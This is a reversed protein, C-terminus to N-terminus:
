FREEELMNETQFMDFLFNGINEMNGYDKRESKKGTRGQRKLVPLQNSNHLPTICLMGHVSAM